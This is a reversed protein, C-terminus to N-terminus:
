INKFRSRLSNFIKGPKCKKGNFEIEILELKGDGTLVNLTNDKTFEAFQGPIGYWMKKEEVVKMKKKKFAM